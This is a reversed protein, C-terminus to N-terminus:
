EAAPALAREVAEPEREIVQLYAQASQDPEARHQEWDRLTSIPIRFRQSFEEQSLGLKRRIRKASSVRRMRALQENTLPPNDPDCLAAAVIEEDTMTLALDKDAKTDRGSM